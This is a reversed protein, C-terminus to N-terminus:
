GGVWVLLPACENAMVGVMLRDGSSHFCWGVVLFSPWHVTSPRGTTEIWSVWCRLGGLMGSLVHSVSTTVAGSPAAHTRDQWRLTGIVGNTSDALPPDRRVLVGGCVCLWAATMAVIIRPRMSM